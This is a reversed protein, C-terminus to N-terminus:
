SLYSHRNSRGTPSAGGEPEREDNTRTCEDERQETRPWLRRHRDGRDALRRADFQPQTSEQGFAAKLTKGGRKLIEMAKDLQRTQGRLPQHRISEPEGAFAIPFGGGKHPRHFDHRGTQGAAGREHLIIRIMQM